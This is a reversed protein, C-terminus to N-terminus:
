RYIGKDNNGYRSEQLQIYKYIGKLNDIGIYKLKKAFFIYM